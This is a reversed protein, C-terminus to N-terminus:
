GAETQKYLPALPTLASQGTQTAIRFFQALDWAYKARITSSPCQLATLSSLSRIHESDEHAARRYALFLERLVQPPEPAVFASSRGSRSTYFIKQPRSLKLGAASPNSYIVSATSLVM